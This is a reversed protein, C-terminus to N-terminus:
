EIIRILIASANDNTPKALAAQVLIEATTDPREALVTVGSAASTSAHSPDLLGDSGLLVFSGAKLPLEFIEPERLLAIQGMEVDGFARSMQLGSGTVGYTGSPPPYIYGGYISCGRAKALQVEHPNSRVNHDPALWFEDTATKVVAPSDGLVGVCVQDAQSSVFAITATTGAVFARTRVALFDFLGRMKDRVFPLAPNEAVALFADIVMTRCFESCEHGGHGDFVAFLHGGDVPSAFLRDEQYDRNGKGTAATFTLRM